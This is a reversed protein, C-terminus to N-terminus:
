NDPAGAAIWPKLVREVFDPPLPNPQRPGRTRPDLPMAEGERAHLDGTLKAILFSDRPSGPVVRRANDREFAIHGVLEAYSHEPRLDLGVSNDMEVGHCGRASACNQALVPAIEQRFSPAQAAAASAVGPASPPAPADRKCGQALLATLCFLPFTRLSM